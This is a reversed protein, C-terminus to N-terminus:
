KEVVAMRGFLKGDVALSKSLTVTITQLGASPTGLSVEPAGTDLPIDGGDSFSLDTSYQFTQVTDTASEVRRTLSFVFNAGSVDVAPLNPNDLDAVTPNGDFVYELLNVIGDRDDDGDTSADSIGPYSSIWTVYGETPAGASLSIAARLATEDGGFNGNSGVVFSLTDGASVAIGTLDFSGDVELLRGEAGTTSFLNTGNLYIEAVVSNGGGGTTGGSLDRFTGSVRATSGFSTIDAGDFTYRAIVHDNTEASGPHLLLDVGVLAAHGPASANGEQGDSFIEFDAGGEISGLVGPVDFNGVADAHGANGGNGTVTSPTLAYETGGSAENSALYVWQAPLNAADAYDFAADGVVTSPVAVVDVTVTVTTTVFGDSVDVNFTDDTATSDPVPFYALKSGNFRITAGGVSIADANTITLPDADGDTALDDVELTLTVNQNTMVHPASSIPADNTRVTITAPISFVDGASNSVYCDYVGADDLVVSPITFTDSDAGPIEAFNKAWQYTLPATGEATVSLNLTDGVTLTQSAPHTTVTPAEISVTITAAASADSGFANTVVCDYDGADAEGLSPINFSSSTAGMIDVMGKRWQYTFPPTGSVNVSLALAEGVFLDQSVPDTTVSPPVSVPAAGIDISAQLATEDSSFNGNRFVVFSVTDGEAALTELSFVGSPLSGDAYLRSFEGTASFLETGNLLVSAVISNNSGANNAGQLDRFSGTITAYDGNTMDAASLTYRAIIYETAANNGPHLVLDTGVVGAHGFGSFLGLDTGTGAISGLVNPTGSGGATSGFGRNGINGVASDASLAVETGGTAANSYVYEWGSPPATPATGAGIGPATQYDAAANAVEVAQASPCIVGAIFLSLVPITRM